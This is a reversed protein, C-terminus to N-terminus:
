IDRVVFKFMHVLDWEYFNIGLWAEYVSGSTFSLGRRHPDPPHPPRASETPNSWPFAWTEAVPLLVFVFGPSTM